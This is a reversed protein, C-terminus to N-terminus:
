ESVNGCGIGIFDQGIADGNLDTYRRFSEFEILPWTDCTTINETVFQWFTCTDNVCSTYGAIYHALKAADFAYNYGDMNVDAAIQELCTLSIVRARANLIKIADSLDLSLDDSKSAILTYDGPRVTTFTYYGSADTVMSYSHTGTLTMTVGQLDSSAIDTYNSVHGAIMYFIETVTISFTTQTIDTGDSVSITIDTSGSQNVLPTITITYNNGDNTILIASDQILSQDASLASVTLTDGEIDSITLIIDISSGESVTQDSITSIMPVDNVNVVTLDFFASATLGSSDEAIITITALGNQNAIPTISFFYNGSMCTYSITNAPVLTEDSSTITLTLDCPNSEYDNITLSTSLSADENMTQPIIGTFIPSSNPAVTFIGGSISVALNNVIATSMTIESTDGSAGIVTFDLNTCLGTGTFHSANAAFVVYIIGSIGTNYDFLYSENEMVTGTLSVGTATLVAPDYAINLEISRIDMNTLNNMTLPISITQTQNQTTSSPVVFFNSAYANYISILLIVTCM